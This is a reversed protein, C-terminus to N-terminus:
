GLRPKKAKVVILLFGFCIMPLSLYQGMTVGFEGYSYAFGNLNTTSFFQPDPVRYFEVLYRSVGYMLLFLGTIM